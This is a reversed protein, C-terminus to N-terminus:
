QALDLAPTSACPFRVADWRPEAQNSSFQLNDFQRHTETLQHRFHFSMETGSKSGESTVYEDIGSHYLVDGFTVSVGDARGVGALRPWLVTRLRDWGTLTPAAHAVALAAPGGLALATPGRM